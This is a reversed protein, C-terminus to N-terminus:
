FVQDSVIIIGSWSELFLDARLTTTFSCMGLCVRKRTDDLYSTMM